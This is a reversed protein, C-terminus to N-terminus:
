PVLVNVERGWSLMTEHRLCVELKSIVDAVLTVTPSDFRILPSDLGM